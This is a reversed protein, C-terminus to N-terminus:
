RNWRAVRRKGIFTKRRGGFGEGGGLTVRQLSAKSSSIGIDIGKSREFNEKLFLIDKL